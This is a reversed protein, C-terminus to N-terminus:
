ASLPIVNTVYLGGNRGGRKEILGRKRLRYILTAALPDCSKLASYQIGPNARIWELLAAQRPAARKWHDPDRWIRKRTESQKAVYDKNAWMTARARQWEQSALRAAVASRVHAKREEKTKKAWAARRPGYGRGRYSNWLQQGRVQIEAQERRYAEHHSLREAIMLEEIQAGDLWASVLHEYLPMPVRGVLGAARKRVIRRVIRMHDLHRKGSGKGIYRIEGDVVIAYVFAM